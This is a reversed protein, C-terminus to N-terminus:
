VFEGSNAFSELASCRVSNMINEIRSSQCRRLNSKREEENGKRRVADSLM